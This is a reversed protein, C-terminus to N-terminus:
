KYDTVRNFLHLFNQTTVLASEEERIGKTDALAKNIHIIYAPENRKGRYPSPSIFPADTEILLRDIPLKAVINRLYNSKKFTLIGSLSIYLGIDIMRMAMDYPGSFCHIVGNFPKNVYEKELITATEEYSNRTHIILPMSTEQAAAIHARFTDIQTDRPINSHFYDLGCEGIAVVRECSYALAIIKETSICTDKSIQHPHSGVSCYVHSFNEAITRVGAFCSMRTCVALMHIVRARRARAIVNDLDSKFEDFDLHCHSDSLIPLSLKTM